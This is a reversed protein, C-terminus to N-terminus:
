RMVYTQNIRQILWGEPVMDYISKDQGLILEHIPRYIDDSATRFGTIDAISALAQKGEATDALSLFATLIAQRKGPALEPRSVVPENPVTGTVELVRLEPHVSAMGEYTAAAAVSKELLAKASASHRGTFVSEVKVGARKLMIAPLLFGSFSYQDSFAVKKGAIDSFAVIGSDGRVLLAARYETRADRRLVQLDAVAGGEQRAILYEDTTLIGVDAMGAIFRKIADAPDKAVKVKVSMGSQASLHKEIFLRAAESAPAHSPSLLVVLPNCATGVSGENRSCGSALFALSLCGALASVATKHRFGTGLFYFIRGLLGGKGANDSNGAIHRNKM